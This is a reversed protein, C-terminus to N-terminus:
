LYTLTLILNLIVTPPEELNKCWEEQVM